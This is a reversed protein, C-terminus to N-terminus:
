NIGQNISHESEDHGRLAIGQRALYILIDIIVKLYNRNKEIFDKHATSLQTHVTGTKETQIFLQFKTFSSLHSLSKQHRNLKDSM